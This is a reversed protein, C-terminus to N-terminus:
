FNATQQSRTLCGLRERCQGAVARTELLADCASLKQSVEALRVELDSFSFSQEQLTRLTDLSQQYERRAQLLATQSTPNITRTKLDFSAYIDGTAAKYNAILNRVGSDQSTESALRELMQLAEQYVAIAETQRGKGALFDASQQFLETGYIITASRNRDETMYKRSLALGKRVLEFSESEEGIKYLAIGVKVTDKAENYSLESSNPNGARAETVTKLAYRYDDLAGRYDGLATLADGRRNHSSSVVRLAQILEPNERYVDQAIQGASQYSDAANQLEGLDNLASGQQIYAFSLNVRAQPDRATERGLKIQRQISVLASHFDAKAEEGRKFTRLFGGRREYSGGLGGLLDQNDPDGALLTKQLQIIEDCAQFLEEHRSLGEYAESLKFIGFALDKKTTPNNPALLVRQRQIAVAKQYSQLAGANDFLTWAQLSGVNLYALALEGLVGVDRDEDQALADLYDLSKKALLRQTSATGPVTTLSSQVETVLSNSLKRIEGFRREARARGQQAVRAQWGTLLTAAILTLVVILAAAVSAKHRTIFKSTRYSLTDSRALVPLGDLHRRLDESFEVVSAYRREPEKRLAKLLINDLDGVLRRRLKDLNGDRVRSIEDPTHSHPEADTQRAAEIRSIIVSPKIPQSTTIKRVVDDALRSEFTFPRHGSLLEYLVVGLSYVDGSTTVPLGRFEEPSAYEPTLARHITATAETSSAGSLLKAIGFDLLKPTGDATVIINSPKLDRHVILNQHAFQVAGCVQRFLKVRETTNLRYQDCFRTITMGDVFELVFYPLGDGTTGGDILRAINPHDLHALIQREMVFRKIIADSDMGRKILKLAVLKDFSEDSRAALYVTGMGGRGLERITRYSGIRQGTFAPPNHIEENTVLGGAELAPKHMFDGACEHATLLASVDRRLLDDNGCSLTLFAERDEPALEVAAHFLKKKQSWNPSNM